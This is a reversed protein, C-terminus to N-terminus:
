GDAVIDSPVVPATRGPEISIAYGSFGDLGTKDSGVTRLDMRTTVVDFTGLAVPANQQKGWVVYTTASRNNMDLGWTVVQVQGHRAVVTAVTHGDHDSVPAITAQGPAMLGDLVQAQDAAVEQANQRSSILSIDWAGLGVVVAAAAALLAQPARSRWGRRPVPV